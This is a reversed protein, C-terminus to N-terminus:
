EEEEEEELVYREGGSQETPLAGVRSCFDRDDSSPNGITVNCTTAGGNRTLSDSLWLLLHPGRLRNCGGPIRANALRVCDGLQNVFLIRKAQDKKSM